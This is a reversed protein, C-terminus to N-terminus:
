FSHRVGVGTQSQKYDTGSPADFKTQNNFVFLNTRKSLTYVAFLDYATTDYSKVGTTTLDGDTYATNITWKTGSLPISASLSNQSSKVNSGAVGNGTATVVENKYDSHHLGVTAFGFNYSGGYVNYTLDAKSAEMATVGSTDNTTGILSVLQVGTTAAGAANSMNKIKQYAYGAKLNGVAYDIAYMTSGAVKTSAGNEVIVESAQNGLRATFGGFSPSTYVVANGARANQGYKFLSAAGQGNNTGGHAQSGALAGSSGDVLSYMTGAAITGLQANELAVFGVRLNGMSGGSLAGGEGSVTSSTTTTGEKATLNIGYEVVFKAKNGAGLDETGRFGLRSGNLIGSGNASWAGGTSTLKNTNAGGTNKLESYSMDLLGYVEVSSQAQAGAVVSLAAAAILLKKM